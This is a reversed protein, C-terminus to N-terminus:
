KNTEFKNRCKPCITFPTVEERKRTTLWVERNADTPHVRDIEAKYQEIAMQYYVKKVIDVVDRHLGTLTVEIFRPYLVPTMATLKMIYGYSREALLGIHRGLHTGNWCMAEDRPINMAKFRELRKHTPEYNSENSRKLGRSEM